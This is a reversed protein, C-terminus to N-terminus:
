LLRLSTKLKTVFVSPDSDLQITVSFPSVVATIVGTSYRLHQATIIVRAGVVFSETSAPSPITYDFPSTPSFSHDPPIELLEQLQQTLHSIRLVLSRIRQQREAPTM